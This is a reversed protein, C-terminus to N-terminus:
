LSIFLIRRRHFYNSACALYVYLINFYVLALTFRSFSVLNLISMLKFVRQALLFICIDCLVRLLLHM